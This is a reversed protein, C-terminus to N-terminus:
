HGILSLKDYYKAKEVEENIKRRKKIEEKTLYKIVIGKEINNGTKNEKENIIDKLGMSDGDNM